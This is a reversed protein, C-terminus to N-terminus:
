RFNQTVRTPTDARVVVTQRREGFDPHRFVFEYTGIPLSLNALPTQGHATGNVTVDAWPVANVSVLMNPVGVRIPTTQGNTVTVTQTVRYGLSRNAFVLSHRGAPLAIPEATSGIVANDRLVELEIPSLVRLGGPRPVPAAAPRPATVPTDAPATGSATPAGDILTLPPLSSHTYEPVPRAPFIIPPRILLAVIAVAEAIAMGLLAGFVWISVDGAFLVRRIQIPPQASPASRSPAPSASVPTPLSPRAPAPAPAPVAHLKPARDIPLVPAPKPLDFRLEPEIPEPEPALVPLPEPVRPTVPAAHVAAIAPEPSESPFALLAGDEEAAQLAPDHAFEQFAAVAEQASPFSNPAVQLLRSLWDGLKTTKLVTQTRRAEELVASAMAPYEEARLTRGVMLSLIIWGFQRLDTREDLRVPVAEPVVLGLDNFRPRSWHLAELAAAFVHEVLILRKDRTLVIRNLSMAGHGLGPSAKHLAALAPTVRRIVDFALGPGADAASLETLRRGSPYKSILFLATDTREVSQVSALAPNALRGVKEVRARLAGDFALSEGLERRLRLTEIITDNASDFSYSRDGLEDAFGAPTQRVAQGHEGDLSQVGHLRPTNM